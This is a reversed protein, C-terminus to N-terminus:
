ADGAPSSAPGGKLLCPGHCPMEQATDWREGASKEHVARLGQAIVVCVMPNQERKDEKGKNRGRVCMVFEEKRDKM